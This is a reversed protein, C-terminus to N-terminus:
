IDNKKKRHKRFNERIRPESNKMLRRINDKHKYIVILSTFMLILVGIGYSYGKVILIYIPYLMTVLITSIVLRDVIIGFIVASIGFIFGALPSLGLMMGVYTAFGKGGKFKLKLICPFIHGLVAGCGAVVPAYTLDKFATRAIVVPAVGKLIDVVYAILAYKYGVTVAVNSAGANNTGFQRIDIGAKIKAIIYSIVINGFMYGMLLIAIYKLIVM